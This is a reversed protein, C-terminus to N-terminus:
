LIGITSLTELLLRFQSQSELLSLFNLQQLQQNSYNIGNLKLYFATTVWRFRPNLEFAIKAVSRLNKIEIAPNNSIGAIKQMRELDSDSIHERLFNSFLYSLILFQISCQFGIQGVMKKLQFRDDHMFIYSNTEYFIRQASDEVDIIGLLECSNAFSEEIMLRVITTETNEQPGFFTSSITRAIAHCSEHFVNNKKLNDTIDDWVASDKIGDLVSVNDIYPITKTKLINELQSLPLALYSSNPEHSYKFDFEVTKKRILKYLHNNELLFSDGLNKALGLPQTSKNHLELLRSLKM